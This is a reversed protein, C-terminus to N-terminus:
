KKVSPGWFSDWTGVKRGSIEHIMELNVNDLSLPLKRAGAMGAWLTMCQKMYANKIDDSARNWIDTVYVTLTRGDWKMGSYLARYNNNSQIHNFSERMESWMAKQETEIKAREAAQIKEQEALEAKRKENEAAQRLEEKEKAEAAERVQKQYESRHKELSALEEQSTTEIRCNKMVWLSNSSSQSLKCSVTLHDGEKAFNSIRYDYDFSTVIPALGEEQLRIEKEGISKITATWRFYQERKLAEGKVSDVTSKMYSIPLFERTQAMVKKEQIQEVFYALGTLLVVILAVVVWGINRLKTEGMAQMNKGTSLKTFSISLTAIVQLLTVGTLVKFGDTNENFALLSLAAFFMGVSYIVSMVEAKKLLGYVVSQSELFNSNGARVGSEYKKLIQKIKWTGWTSVIPLLMAVKYKQSSILFNSAHKAPVDASKTIDKELRELSAKLEASKDYTKAFLASLEKASKFFEYNFEQLYYGNQIVKEEGEVFSLEGYRSNLLLHIKEIEDNNFQRQLTVDSYLSLLFANQEINPINEINRKMNNLLVEINLSITECSVVDPQLLPILEDVEFISTTVRIKEAGMKEQVESLKVPDIISTYEFELAKPTALVKNCEASLRHILEIDYDRNKEILKDFLLHNQNYATLKDTTLKAIFQSAVKWNDGTLMTFPRLSEIVARPAPDNIVSLSLDIFRRVIIDFAILEISGLASMKHVSSKLKNAAAVVDANIAINVTNEQLGINYKADTKTKELDNRANSLQISVRTQQAILNNTIQLNTMHQAVERNYREIDKKDNKKPSRPAPSSQYRKIEYGLQLEERELGEVCGESRVIAARWSSSIEELHKDAQNFSVPDNIHVVLQRPSEVTSTLEAFFSVAIPQLLEEILPTILVTM